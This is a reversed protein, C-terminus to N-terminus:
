MSVRLHTQACPFHLATCCLVMFHALLWCRSKEAINSLPGPPAPGRGHIEMHEDERSSTEAACSSLNLLTARPWAGGMSGVAEESGSCPHGGVEVGLVLLRNIQHDFQLTRSVSGSKSHLGLKDFFVMFWRFSSLRVCSSLVALPKPEIRVACCFGAWCTSRWHDKDCNLMWVNSRILPQEQSFRSRTHWADLPAFSIKGLTRATFRVSHHSSGASQVVPEM